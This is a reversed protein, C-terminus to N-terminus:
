LHGLLESALVRQAEHAVRVDTGGASQRGILFIHMNLFMDLNQAAAGFKDYWPDSYRRDPPATAPIPLGVHGMAEARKMEKLKIWTM